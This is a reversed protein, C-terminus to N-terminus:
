SKVVERHCRAPSLAPRQRFIVYRVTDVPCSLLSPHGGGKLKRGHM